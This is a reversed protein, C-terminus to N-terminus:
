STSIRERLTRFAIDISPPILDGAPVTLATDAIQVGRVSRAAALILL